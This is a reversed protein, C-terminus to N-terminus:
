KEETVALVQDAKVNQLIQVGGAPWTIRLSQILTEDGLGLHVRKDSSSYIGNAPSVHEFIRRGSPLAAEIRAGIADRNSRTGRLTLLLWHKASKASKRYLVCTDNLRSVATELSGDNDFDGVALGRFAGPEQFLRAATVLM